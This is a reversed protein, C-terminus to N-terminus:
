GRIGSNYGGGFVSLTARPDLSCRIYCGAAARGGSAVYSRGPRRHTATEPTLHGGARRRRRHARRHARRDADTRVERRRRATRRTERAGGTAVAPTDVADVRAPAGVRRSKPGTFVSPDHADVDRMNRITAGRVVRRRGTSRPSRRRHQDELISGFLVAPRRVHGTATPQLDGDEM